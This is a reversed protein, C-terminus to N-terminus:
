LAKEDNNNNYLTRQSRLVAQKLTDTSELVTAWDSLASCPKPLSVARVMWHTGVLELFLNDHPMIFMTVNTAPSRAETPQRRFCCCSASVAVLPFHLFQRSPHCKNDCLHGQILQKLAGTQETSTAQSTHGEPGQALRAVCAARPTM